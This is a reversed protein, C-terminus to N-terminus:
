KSEEKLNFAATAALEKMKNYYKEGAKSTVIRYYINARFKRRRVLWGWQLGKSILYYMNQKFTKDAKEKGGGMDERYEWDHINCAETIKLGWIRDPIM